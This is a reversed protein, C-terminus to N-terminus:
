KPRNTKYQSTTPLYKYSNSNRSPDLLRNCYGASGSCVMVSYTAEQSSGLCTPANPGPQPPPNDCLRTRVKTGKAASESLVCEGWESWEGWNPMQPCMCPMCEQSEGNCSSEGVTAGFGDLCKRTRCREGEGCSRSCAVPWASWTSWLYSSFCISKE